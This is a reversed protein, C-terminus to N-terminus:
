LHARSVPGLHASAGPQAVESSAPGQWTDWWSPLPRRGKTDVQTQGGPAPPLQAPSSPGLSCLSETHNPSCLGPYVGGAEWWEGGVGQLAGVPWECLGLSSRKGGTHVVGPLFTIKRCSWGSSRPRLSKEKDENKGCLFLSAPRARCIWGPQSARCSIGSHVLALLAPPTM